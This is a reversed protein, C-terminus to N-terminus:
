FHRKKFSYDRRLELVLGFPPVTSQTAFTNFIASFHTERRRQLAPRRVLRQQVPLFGLQLQQLRHLAAQDLLALAVFLVRGRQRGDRLLAELHVPAIIQLTLKPRLSSKKKTKLTYQLREIMGIIM